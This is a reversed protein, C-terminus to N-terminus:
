APTHPARWTLPAGDVSDPFPVGAIAAMTPAVDVTRAPTDMVGPEIDAGLLVIPVERDYRYSSGHASGATWLQTNETYEAVIGWNAPHTAGVNGYLVDSTWLPFPSRRGSIYSNRYAALIDDAPESGDLEAPTMARAVLDSRELYDSRFQDLTIVLLLKPQSPPEQPLCSGVSVAAMVTLSCVFPKRIM